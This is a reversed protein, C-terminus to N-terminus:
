LQTQRCFAPIIGSGHLLNVARLRISMMHVDIYGKVDCKM